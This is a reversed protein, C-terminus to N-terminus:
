ELLMENSINLHSTIKGNILLYAALGVFYQANSIWEKETFKIAKLNTDFINRVQNIELRFDKILGM